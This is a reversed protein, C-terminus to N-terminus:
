WRLEEEKTKTYLQQEEEITFQLQLNAEEQHIYKEHLLLEIHQLKAIYCAIILVNETFFLIDIHNGLNGGDQIFDGVILLFGFWMVQLMYFDFVQGFGFM